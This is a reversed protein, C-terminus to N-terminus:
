PAAVPTCISSHSNPSFSIRRGTSFERVRRVTERASATRPLTSRKPRRHGVMSFMNASWALSMSKSISM